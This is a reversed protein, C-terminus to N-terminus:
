PNKLGKLVLPIPYRSLSADDGDVRAWPPTMGWTMITGKADVAFSSAGGAVVSQIGSLGDITSPVSRRHGRRGHTDDGWSVVTGNGTLALAHLEAVSLARIGTVGPVPAPTPNPGDPKFGSRGLGANGHGWTMVTGDALLAASIWVSAAVAVANKIGLVAVPSRRNTTTGDGLQGRVNSGWARVTGDKLLALSHQAGTTVAAVDSLGPIQVPYPM